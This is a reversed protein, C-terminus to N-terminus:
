TGTLQVVMVTSSLITKAAKALQKRGPKSFQDQQLLGVAESIGMSSKKIGEIAEEMKEQMDSTVFKGKIEEGIGLLVQTAQIVAQVGPGLNTLQISGPDSESLLVLQSVADAILELFQDM